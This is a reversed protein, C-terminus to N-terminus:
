KIIQSTVFGSALRVHIKESLNFKTIELGSSRELKMYDIRGPNILDSLDFEM